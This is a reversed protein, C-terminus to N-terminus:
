QHQGHAVRLKRHQASAIATPRLHLFVGIAFRRVQHEECFACTVGYPLGAGARKTNRCSAHQMLVLVVGSFM